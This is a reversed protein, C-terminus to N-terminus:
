TALSGSTLAILMPYHPSSCVSGQFHGAQWSIHLELAGLLVWPSTPVAMVWRSTKEQLFPLTPEEDEVLVPQQAIGEVLHHTSGPQTWPDAPNDAARPTSQWAPPSSNKSPKVRHWAPNTHSSLPCEASSPPRKPPTRTGGPTPNVLQQCIGRQCSTSSPTGM